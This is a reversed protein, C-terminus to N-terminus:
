AKGGEARAVDEWPVGVLAIDVRAPDAIYPLRMFTPIAGFRPTVAADVPQPHDHSSHM